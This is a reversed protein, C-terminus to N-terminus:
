SAHLFGTFRDSCFASLSHSTASLAIVAESKTSPPVHAAVM